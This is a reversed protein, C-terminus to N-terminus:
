LSKGLLLNITKKILEELPLEMDKADLMLLAKDSQSKNYGLGKIAQELSTRVSFSSTESHPMEIKEAKDKLELVLREATKKGIGPIHCLKVLDKNIIALLLEQSSLGSLISMGLRPGIGSVSILLLFLQRNLRSTFGFLELADERVHTHIFFKHEQGEILSELDTKSLLVHYGVGATKIVAHSSEVFLVQGELYSIM